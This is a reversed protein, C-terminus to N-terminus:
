PIDNLDEHAEYYRMFEDNAERTAHAGVATIVEVGSLKQVEDYMSQSLPVWYASESVVHCANLAAQTRKREKYGHFSIVNDTM